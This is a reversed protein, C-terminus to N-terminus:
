GGVGALVEVADGARIVGAGEHLLNQGFLVKGDRRRRYTALTRLPEKGLEATAQDTTTIVCRACPKVLDFVVPGIRIRKWRDEAHPPCGAVVINPRFRNMPLKHELRRNLEALSELSTLLAPYGDAFALKSSHSSFRTSSTRESDDLARVLRCSCHLVNQFWAAAADGQDLAEGEFSWVKVKRREESPAPIRFPEAGDANVWLEDGDIRTHITALRPQTRQTVFM